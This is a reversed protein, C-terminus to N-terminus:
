FKHNPHELDPNALWLTTDLDWHQNPPTLNSLFGSILHKRGLCAGQGYVCTGPGFDCKLCM